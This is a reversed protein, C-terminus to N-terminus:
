QIDANMRPRSGASVGAARKAMSALFIASLTLLVGFAEVTDLLRGFFLVDWVLSLAPQLLLAVGTETASLAHLSSAILILGGAHALVGYATLWGLDALTPIVLSQAEVVAAIGLLLAVLWSVLAVEALPVTREAGIRASRMSLLYGAYSAATLLGFVIGIRYNAALDSWDFGVILLLGFVALPAAILQLALPRQRLLLVGAAMMFFVQLNALLTALGPGIYVISRHWFWLDLAFFAAAALLALWVRRAFVVRESRRCCLLIALAIGGILVRYFASTTPSVSTVAVFVPSFSILVAGTFLRLRPGPATM